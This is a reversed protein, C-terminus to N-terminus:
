PSSTSAESWLKSFEREGEVSLETIAREVQVRQVELEAPTSEPPIAIPGGYRFLVRSFPHPIEFGDWSGLVFKKEAVVAAPVIPHGTIRAAGILGPQVIRRPGRPGDPTLILNWGDRALRIMGRLAESGGRSSSGRAIGLGFRNMTRAILEGDRHNSIMVVAPRAFRGYIMVMIQGHWFAYLYREGRRNLADINEIGSHRVRLTAHLTRIFMAAVPPVLRLTLDRKM